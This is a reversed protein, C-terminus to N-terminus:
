FCGVCGYMGSVPGKERHSTSKSRRLNRFGSNSADDVDEDV